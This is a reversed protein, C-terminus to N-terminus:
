APRQPSVPAPQDVKNNRQEAPESGVMGKEFLLVFNRALIPHFDVGAQKAISAVITAKDVAKRYPRTTRMADFFDAITTMQSCINQSWSPSSTAPYGSMDYKLHHEYATIAALRPVSPNDMLYRAGRVPHSRMITWEEDTLKGPKNLIENPVFLKGIDHLLAAVGVDHLIEGEIGLGIAQAINLVCVNMSHTFTYEDLMRIPALASLVGKEQRFAEIFGGVVAYLGGMHFRKGMRLAEEIEKLQDVEIQPLDPLAPARAVSGGPGSTEGEQAVDIRGFVVAPSEQRLVGPGPRVCVGILKLMEERTMGNSFAIHSCGCERFVASFRQAYVSEPLRESEVVIQDELLIMSLVFGDAVVDHLSKVTEAAMRITQPHGVTYMRANSLAIVFYRLFGQIREIREAQM